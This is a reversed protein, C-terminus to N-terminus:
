AEEKKQKGDGGGGSDLGAAVALAPAGADRVLRNFEAVDGELLADLRGLVGDLRRGLEGAVAVSADTPRGPYNAQNLLVRLKADLRDPTGLRAGGNSGAPPVLEREVETLAQRLGAAARGVEGDQGAWRDLQGRLERVTSVAENLDSLRRWVQMAHGYQAELDERTAPSRPDNVVEFRATREEGGVRLRVEYVGPPV